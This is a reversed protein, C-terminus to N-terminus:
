GDDALYGVMPVPANDSYIGTPDVFEVVADEGDDSVGATFTFNYAHSRNASAGIQTRTAATGILLGKNTPLQAQVDPTRSNWQSVADAYITQDLTFSVSKLVCSGGPDSPPPTQVFGTIVAFSIRSVNTATGSWSQTQDDGTSADPAFVDLLITPSGLNQSTGIYFANLALPNGSFTGKTYDFTMSAATLTVPNDFELTIFVGRNKAGVVTETSLTDEWGVSPTYVGSVVNYIANRKLATFDFQSTTFDYPIAGAKAIEGWQQYVYGRYTRGNTWVLGDVTVLGGRMPASFVYIGPPRPRTVERDDPPLTPDEYTGSGEDDVEYPPDPNLYPNPVGPPILLEPSLNTDVSDILQTFISYNAEGGSEKRVSMSVSCAGNDGIQVDVNIIQWRTGSEWTVGSPLTSASTNVTVWADFRPVTELFGGLLVFGITDVPRTYAYHNYAILGAQTEANAQSLGDELINGDFTQRFVNAYYGQPAHAQIVFPQKTTTNYSAAGSYIQRVNLTTAQSPAIEIHHDNDIQWLTTLANRDTASTLYSGDQVWKVAGDISEIPKAVNRFMLENCADWLTGQPTQIVGFRYDGYGSFLDVSAINAITTHESIMFWLADGCTLQALEANGTWSAPSAVEVCQFSPIDLSQMARSIGWLNLNAEASFGGQENAARRQDINSSWGYFAVRENAYGNTLYLIVFPTGIPIASVDGYLTLSAESTADGGGRTLSGIVADERVNTSSRKGVFVPVALTNSNSNSDTTECQVWNAGASLNITPTSGSAVNRTITGDAEITHWTTSSITAGSAMASLTPAPQYNYSIGNSWDAYIGTIRPLPARYSVDSNKLVTEGAVNSPLQHPRFSGLIYVRSSTTWQFATRDIYLTTGSPQKRVRNVHVETEPLNKIESLAEGNKVVIVTQGDLVTGITATVSIELNETGSANSAPTLTILADPVYCPVAFFNYGAGGEINSLEESTYASKFGSM